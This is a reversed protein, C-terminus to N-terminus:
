STAEAANDRAVPYGLKERWKQGVALGERYAPRDTWGPGQVATYASILNDFGHAVGSSYNADLGIHKGMRGITPYCYTLDYGELFGADVACIGLLDAKCTAPNIAVKPVVEYEPNRDIAGQIMEDTLKKM